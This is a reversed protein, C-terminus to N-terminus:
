GAQWDPTKLVFTPIGSDRWAQNIAEYRADPATAKPDASMLQM